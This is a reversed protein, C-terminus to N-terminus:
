NVQVVVDFNERRARKRIFIQFGADLEYPLTVRNVRHGGAGLQGTSGDNRSDLSLSRYVGSFNSCFASKLQLWVPVLQTIDDGGRSM